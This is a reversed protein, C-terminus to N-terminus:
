NPQIDTRAAVARMLPLEREIQAAAKVGSEFRAEVGQVGGLSAISPPSLKM